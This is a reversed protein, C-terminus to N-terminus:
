RSIATEALALAGLSGADDGLGPPVIYGDIDTLLAPNRIYGNLLSQVRQRFLPFLFPRHSVGGGIVIREPSLTCIFNLLAHATYHAVFDWTPDDDGLMEGPIGSRARLAPGSIMGELCDGHFPCAGPFDDGIARPVRVHGMEPHVLGHLPQGSVIAGGGVGTGITIYLCSDVGQANGWRMEGIAAANVDTEFVVPVGLARGIYGGFDTDEWGPKPTSTIYGWTPSDPRLDVPGFSGIGIADLRDRFPAFFDVVRRLTEDPSTTEIRARAELHDPGTGAVCVFKTGGAEIGGFLIDGSSM